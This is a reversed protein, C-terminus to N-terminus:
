FPGLELRVLRKLQSFKGNTQEACEREGQFSWVLNHRHSARSSAKSFDSRFLFFVRTTPNSLCTSIGVGRDRGYQIWENREPVELVKGRGVLGPCFATILVDMKCRMEGEKSLMTM